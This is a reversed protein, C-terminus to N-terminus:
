HNVNKKYGWISNHRAMAQNEATAYAAKKGFLWVSLFFVSVKKGCIPCKTSYGGEIKRMENVNVSKM